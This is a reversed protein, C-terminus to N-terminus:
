EKKKEISRLRLLKQLAPIVSPQKTAMGSSENSCQLVSEGYCQIAPLKM